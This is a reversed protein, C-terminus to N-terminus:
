NATVENKGQGDEGQDSEKEDSTAEGRGYLRGSRFQWSYFQQEHVFNRFQVQAMERRFAEGSDTVNGKTSQKATDNEDTMGDPNADDNDDPPVLLDLFYFCNPYM